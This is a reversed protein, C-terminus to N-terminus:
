RVDTVDRAIPLPSLSVPTANCPEGEGTQSHLSLLLFYLFYLLTMVQRCCSCSCQELSRSSCNDISITLRMAFIVTGTPRCNYLMPSQYDLIQESFAFSVHWSRNNCPSVKSILLFLLLSPLYCFLMRRLNAASTIVLTAPSLSYMHLRQHSMYWSKSNYHYFYPLPNIFLHLM